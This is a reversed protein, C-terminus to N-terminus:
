RARLEKTQDRSCTQNTQVMDTPRSDRRDRRALRVMCRSTCKCATFCGSPWGHEVCEEATVDAGGFIDAWLAFGPEAGSLIDLLEFRAWEEKKDDEFLRTEMREKIATALGAGPQFMDILSSLAFPRLLRLIMWSAAVPELSAALSALPPCVERWGM